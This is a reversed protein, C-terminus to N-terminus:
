YFNLKVENILMFLFSNVYFKLCLQFNHLTTRNNFFKM